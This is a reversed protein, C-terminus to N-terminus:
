TSHYEHVFFPLLFQLHNENVCFQVSESCAHSAVYERVGNLFQDATAEFFDRKTLMSLYYRCAHEPGVLWLEERFQRHEPSDIPKNLYPSFNNTM